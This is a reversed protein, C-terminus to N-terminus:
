HKTKKLIEDLDLDILLTLSKNQSDNMSKILDNFESDFDEKSPHNDYAEAPELISQNLNVTIIETADSEQSRFYIQYIVCEKSIEWISFINL